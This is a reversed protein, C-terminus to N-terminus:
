CGTVADPTVVPGTGARLLDGGGKGGGGAGGDDGSGTCVPFYELRRSGNLSNSRPTVTVTIRYSGAPVRLQYSPGSQYGTDVNGIVGNSYSVQWRLYLDPGPQNAVEVTLTYTDAQHIPTAPGDIDTVAFGDGPAPPSPDPTVMVRVSDGILRALTGVVAGPITTSTLVARVVTSDTSQPSSAKIVTAPGTSPNVTVLGSLPSWSISASSSPYSSPFVNQSGLRVSTVSDRASGGGEITLQRSLLSLGTVFTDSWMSPYPISSFGYVAFLFEAEQACPSSNITSDLPLHMACNTPTIDNRHWSQQFGLVHGFEHVLVASPIDHNTTCTTILNVQSRSPTNGCTNAGAGTGTVTLLGGSAVWQFHPMGRLWGSGLATNWAEAAFVIAASDQIPGSVTITQCGWNKIYTAVFKTSGVGSGDCQPLAIEAFAVPGADPV